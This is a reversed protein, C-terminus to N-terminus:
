LFHDEFLLMLQERSSSHFDCCMDDMFDEDFELGHWEGFHGAATMMSHSHELAHTINVSSLGQKHLLDALDFANDFAEMMDCQGSFDWTALPTKENRLEILKLPDTWGTSGAVYFTIYRLSQLVLPVQKETWARFACFHFNVVLLGFLNDGYFTPIAEERIQRCLQLLPPPDSFLLLKGADVILAHKYIM